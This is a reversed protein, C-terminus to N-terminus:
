ELSYTGDPNKNIIVKDRTQLGIESLADVLRARDYKPEIKYLVSSIWVVGKQTEHVGAEYCNKGITLDIFKKQGCEHPLGDSGEKTIYIECIDEGDAYQGQRTVTGIIKAGSREKVFKTRSPEVVTEKHNKQAGSCKAGKKERVSQVSNLWIELEWEAISKGNAKLQAAKVLKVYDKINDISTWRLGRFDPLERIIISDFPCHPPPPILDACWLYKLYLNLAKQAIGLRFCGERLCNPFKASLDDSLDKINALHEEEKVTSEYKRSVEDLKKRLANRFSNKAEETASKSYTGSRGLAGLVSMTLFENRLFKENTGAMKFKM